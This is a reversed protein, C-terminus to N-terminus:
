GFTGTQGVGAPTTLFPALALWLAACALAASTLRRTVAAGPYDAGDVHRRRPFGGASTTRSGVSPRAAAIRPESQCKRARESLTARNWQESGGSPPPRICRLVTATAAIVAMIAM